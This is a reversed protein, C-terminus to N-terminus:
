TLFVHKRHHHLFPLHKPQLIRLELEDSIGIKLAVKEPLKPSIVLEKSDAFTIYGRDFALDFQPALLLGNYVNLRDANSSDRWPRIHSARLLAPLDLETVACKKDWFELLLDRFVGQGVRSKIVSSKETEKLGLLEPKANNLEDIIDPTADNEQETTQESLGPKTSKDKTATHNFIANFFQELSKETEFLFPIGHHIPNVGKNQRKRYKKMSARHLFHPHENTRAHTVGAINKLSSLIPLYDPNIVIRLTDQTIYLWEDFDSNYYRWTKKTNKEDPKEKFGVKELAIDLQKKNM